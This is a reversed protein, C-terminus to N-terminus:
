LFIDEKADPIWLATVDTERVNKFGHKTRLHRAVIARTKATFQCVGCQFGRGTDVHRSEVHRSLDRKSRATKDCALCRWLPPASSGNDMEEMTIMSEILESLDTLNPSFPRSFLSDSKVHM